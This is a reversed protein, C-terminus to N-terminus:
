ILREGVVDTSFKQPRSIGWDNDPSNEIWNIWFM